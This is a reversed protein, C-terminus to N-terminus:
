TLRHRHTGGPDILYIKAASEAVSLFAIHSGDPSWVPCCAIVPQDNLKRTISHAIDLRYLKNTGDRNSVFLIAQRPTGQGVLLALFIFPAYVVVGLVALRSFYTLAWSKRSHEM